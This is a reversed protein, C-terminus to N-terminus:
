LSMNHVDFASLLCRSVKLSNGILCLLINIKRVDYFFVYISHIEKYSYYLIYFPFSAETIALDTSLPILYHMYHNNEGIQTM